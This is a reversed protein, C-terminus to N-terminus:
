PAPSNNIEAGKNKGRATKRWWVVLGIIVLVDTLLFLLALPPSTALLPLFMFPTFVAFVLVIVGVMPQRQNWAFRKQEDAAEDTMPLWAIDRRWLENGALYHRMVRMVARPKLKKNKSAYEVHTNRNVYYLSLGRKPVGNAQFYVGESDHLIISTESNPSLDLLAYKIANADVEEAATYGNVELRMGADETITHRNDASGIM